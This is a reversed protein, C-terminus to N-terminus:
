SAPLSASAVMESARGDSIPIPLDRLVLDAIQGPELSAPVPVPRELVVRPAALVTLRAKSRLLKGPRQALYEVQVARWAVSLPQPSGLARRDARKASSM